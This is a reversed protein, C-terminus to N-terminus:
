TSSAWISALPGVPGGPSPPRLLKGTPSVANHHLDDDGNRQLLFLNESGSRANSRVNSYYEVM